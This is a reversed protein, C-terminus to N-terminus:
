GQLRALACLATSLLREAPPVATLDLTIPVLTVAPAAAELVLPELDLVLTTCTGRLDLLQVLATFTSPAITATSGTQTRVTGTLVGTAALQGVDNVTVEQLTLQGAFAHGNALRGTVPLEHLISDEGWAKGHELLLLLLATAGVLLLCTGYRPM